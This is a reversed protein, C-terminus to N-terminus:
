NEGLSVSLWTVSNPVTAQIGKCNNAGHPSLASQEARAIYSLQEIKFPLCLNKKPPLHWVFNPIHFLAM